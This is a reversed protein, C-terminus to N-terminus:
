EKTFDDLRALLEKWAMKRPPIDEASNLKSHQVSVVSKASAGEPVAKSSIDVQARTGDALSVRWYRWKETASASPAEAFPVGDVADVGQMVDLWARLTEDLPAHLTKSASAAFTGLHGQGVERLGHDHEYDIAITQAWWGDNLPKGTVAHREIELQRIRALALRALESHTLTSAGQGELWETWERWSHGTATEISHAAGGM